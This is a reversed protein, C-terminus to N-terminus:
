AGLMPDDARHRCDERTCVRCNPGVPEAAEGRVQEVGESYVTKDGHNIDCALMVSMYNRPRNFGDGGKHVAKAIFLFQDGNPFMTFQRILQEPRLFARYLGWLPCAAGYSPLPLHPLPLRKSLHGAPGARMFAFPIGENGPRRLTSLRQCTQEFSTGYLRQLREIDYRLEKADNLFRDYPMLLAAAGHAGLVTRLRRGTTEGIVGKFDALTANIADGFMLSSVHQALKFRRSEPADELSLAAESVRSGSSDLFRVLDQETLTAGNVHDPALGSVLTPILKEAAHEIRAFYNNHERVFGYVEEVPGVALAETHSKDFFAALAEGVESLRGSEQALIGYFRQQQEPDINDVNVLIDSTSRLAAINTLMKHVADGLFPDHNLRDSLAAVADNKKQLLQFVQVLAQAWQPYRGMLEAASAPDLGLPAMSPDSALEVLDNVLHRESTGDLDKLTLGLEDAASNLLKGAIGRKNREILNLYSPSIQLRSALDSQTIGLAKRQKRIRLGIVANPM